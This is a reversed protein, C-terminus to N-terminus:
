LILWSGVYLAAFALALRRYRRCERCTWAARLRESLPM